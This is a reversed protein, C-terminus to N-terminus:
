YKISYFNLFCGLFGTFNTYLWTILNFLRQLSSLVDKIRFGTAPNFFRHCTQVLFKELPKIQYAQHRQCAKRDFTISDSKSIYNRKFVDRDVSSFKKAIEPM